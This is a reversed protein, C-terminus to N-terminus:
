GLTIRVSRNLTAPGALPTGAADRDPTFQRFASSRSNSFVRGNM